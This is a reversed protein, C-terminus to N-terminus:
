DAPGRIRQREVFVGGIVDGAAVVTGPHDLYLGGDALRGYGEQLPPMVRDGVARPRTLAAIVEGATAADPFHEEHRDGGAGAPPIVHVIQM